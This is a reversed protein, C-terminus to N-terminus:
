ENAKKENAALLHCGHNPHVSRHDALLRHNVHLDRDTTVVAYNPSSLGIFICMTKRAELASSIPLSSSCSILYLKSKNWKRDKM